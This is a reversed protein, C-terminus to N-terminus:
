RGYRALALMKNLKNSDELKLYFDFTEEDAQIRIIRIPKASIRDITKNAVDVVAANVWKGGVLNFRHVSADGNLNPLDVISFDGLTFVVNVDPSLSFQDGNKNLELFLTVTGNRRLAYANLTAGSLLGPIKAVREMTTMIATDGTAPDYDISKIKQAKVVVPIAALLLVVFIKFFNASRLTM